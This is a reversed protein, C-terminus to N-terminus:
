KERRRVMAAPHQRRILGEAEGLAGCRGFRILRSAGNPRAQLGPSRSLRMAQASQGPDSILEPARRSLLRSPKSCRWLPQRRALTLWECSHQARYALSTAPLWQEGSRHFVPPAPTCVLPLSRLAPLATIPALNITCVFWSLPYRSFVWYPGSICSRSLPGSTRPRAKRGIAGAM